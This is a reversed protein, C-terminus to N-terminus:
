VNLSEISDTGRIQGLLQQSTKIGMGINFKMVHM